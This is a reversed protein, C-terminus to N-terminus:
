RIHQYMHTNSNTYTCCYMINHIDVDQPLGENGGRALTGRLFRTPIELLINPANSGNETVEYSVLIM